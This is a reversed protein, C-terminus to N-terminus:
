GEPKTVRSYVRQPFALTHRLDFNRARHRRHFRCRPRTGPRPFIHRLSGGPRLTGSLPRRRALQHTLVRAPLPRPAQLALLAPQVATMELVATMEPVASTETSLVQRVTMELGASTGTSLVQRVM